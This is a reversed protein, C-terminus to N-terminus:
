LTAAFPLKLPFRQFGGLDAVPAQPLEKKKSFSQRLHIAKPAIDHSIHVRIYVPPTSSLNHM